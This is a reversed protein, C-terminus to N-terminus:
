LGAQGGSGPRGTGSGLVSRGDANRRQGLLEKLYDTIGNEYVFNTNKSETLPIIRLNM